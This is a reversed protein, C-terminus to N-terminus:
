DRTYAQIFGVGQFDSIPGPIFGADLLMRDIQRSPDVIDSLYDFLYVRGPTTAIETIKASVVEVQLPLEPILPVVPLDPQYWNLPAFSGPFKVLVLGPHSVIFSIAQRWQERQLRPRSFYSINGILSIYVLLTLMIKPFRLCSQTFILILPVLCFIIRFPQNQPAFYSVVLMSLIPLFFWIHLLKSKSRATVFAFGIVVFVFGAYVAYATRNIFTIRGALFKFLVTPIAKLTSTSLMQDWGPLTQKIQLGTNLQQSFQPLWPLFFLFSIAVSLLVRSFNKRYYFFAIIIETLIIYFASYHTYLLLSNIFTLRALQNRNFFYMSLSGLLGLLSYARFEQSYYIHYPNIALIFGATWAATVEWRGLQIKVRPLLDNALVYIVGVTGVGFMVPLIRAWTESHSFLLWFHALLYFLPPHFDGGRGSWIFSLSKVSMEAQAAEDLWFSQNLAILRLGTALFLIIILPFIKKAM